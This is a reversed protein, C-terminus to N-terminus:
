ERMGSVIIIYYSVLFYSFLNSIIYYAWWRYDYAM